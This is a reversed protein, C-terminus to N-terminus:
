GTFMPLGEVAGLFSREGKNDICIVLRKGELQNIM